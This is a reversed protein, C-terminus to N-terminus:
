GCSCPVPRAPASGRRRGHLSWGHWRPPRRPRQWAPAAWRARSRALVGDLSFSGAHSAACARPRFRKIGAGPATSGLGVYRAESSSEPGDRVLAKAYRVLVNDGDSRNGNTTTLRFVYAGDADPTFTAVANNAQAIAVSTLASAAPRAVLTWAYDIAAGAPDFSAAGNLAVQAGGSVYQTDGPDAFPPLDSGSVHVTLYEESSVEFDSASLRLIYTGQVDPTFRATVSHRSEVDANVRASAKPVSMLSWEFALPDREADFSGSGDLEVQMGPRTYLNRGTRANPPSNGDSALVATFSPPSSVGAENTVILQIRYSGPVDPLFTPAPDSVDLVVLSGSPAAVISWAFRISCAPHIGVRAATSRSRCRLERLCRTARMQSRRKPRKRTIVRQAKM